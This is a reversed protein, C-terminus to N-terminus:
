SSYEYWREVDELSCSKMWGWTQLLGEKLSTSPVPLGLVELNKTSGHTIKSDLSDPKSPSIHVPIGERELIQLVDALSYPRSGSVNLIDPALLDDRSILESVVSSVDDVYTFDRSVSLDATLIFPRGLLSSALLRFVAMDPRGLPGYVTFFRLGIRTVNTSPYYRAM